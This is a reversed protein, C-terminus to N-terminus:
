ASPCPQLVKELFRVLVYKPVEVRDSFSLMLYERSTIWEVTPM